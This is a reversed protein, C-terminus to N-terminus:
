CYIKVTEPILCFLHLCILEDAFFHFSFLFFFCICDSWLAVEDLTNWMM